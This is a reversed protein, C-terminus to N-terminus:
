VLYQDAKYQDLHKELWSATRAIGVELCTSPTWGLLEKALSPDSVLREVESKAPRLREVRSVVRARMGLVKIALEALESISICRGTGLQITQGVAEKGEAALMFGNVTDDVYTLDREPWLAGLSIEEKGILLRTLITPLVVRGSQRLGYTNFPRLVVM